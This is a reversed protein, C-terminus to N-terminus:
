PAGLTRAVRFGFRRSRLDSVYWLRAGPRRFEANDDWSGGRVVRPSCDGELCDETWEWVNGVMDSLGAANSGHTGVPCTGENGTRDSDCGRQSGAAAREWEAGTPLRYAAGATRSLWSVYAQADDWSVCTVPHRDTQPFGPDRWSDGGICDAGGGGTSSAFARYEGVTVEYRGLALSGGLLVVMEPCAACDSFVTGAARAPPADAAAAPRDAAVRDAEPELLRRESRVLLELAERYLEGARGAAALYKNVSDVAAEIAGASLATQAHKFHFDDPLTLNHESQLAVVKNLEELAGGYDGEGSLTEAQLLYADMMIEPPLQAAAGLVSGLVVLVLVRGIVRRM